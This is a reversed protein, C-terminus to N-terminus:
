GRSAEAIAAALRCGLVHGTEETASCEPCGNEEFGWSHVGKWEVRRLAEARADRETTLRAVEAEAKNVDDTAVEMSHRYRDVKAEAAEARAQSVDLAGRLGDREREAAEARRNLAVIVEREGALMRESAEARARLAAVDAAHREADRCRPCKVYNITQWGHECTDAM